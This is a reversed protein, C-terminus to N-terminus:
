SLGRRAFRQLQWVIVATCSHAHGQLSRVTTRMCAHWVCRPQPHCRCQWMADWPECRLTMETSTAPGMTPRRYGCEETGPLQACGEQRGGLLSAADLTDMPARLAMLPVVPVDQYNAAVDEQLVASRGEHNTRPESYSQLQTNSRPRRMSSAGEQLLQPVQQAGHSGPSNSPLQESRAEM